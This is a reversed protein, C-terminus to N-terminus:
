KSDKTIDEGNNDTIREGNNDTIYEKRKFLSKWWAKFRKWM